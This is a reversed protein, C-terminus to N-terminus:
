QKANKHDLYRSPPATWTVQKGQLRKQYLSRVLCGEKRRAGKDPLLNGLMAEEWLSASWAGMIMYALLTVMGLMLDAFIVQGDRLWLIMATLPASIFWYGGWEWFSSFLHQNSLLLWHKPPLNLSPGEPAIGRLYLCSIGGPLGSGYSLMGLHFPDRVFFSTLVPYPVRAVLVLQDGGILIQSSILNSSDLCLCLSSYEKELLRYLRGINLVVIESM